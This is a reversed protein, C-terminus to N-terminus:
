FCVDKRNYAVVAIHVTYMQWGAEAFCRGVEFNANMCAACGTVGFSAHISVATICSAGACVELVDNDDM